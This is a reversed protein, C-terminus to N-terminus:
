KEYYEEMEEILAELKEIYAKLEDINDALKKAEEVTLFYGDDREQFEVAHTVPPSPREWQFSSRTSVCGVLLISFCITLVNKLM